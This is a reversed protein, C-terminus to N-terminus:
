TQPWPEWRSSPPVDGGMTQPSDKGWTSSNLYIPTKSMLSPPIDGDPSSPPGWLHVLANTFFLQALLCLEQDVPGDINRCDNLTMLNPDQSVSSSELCIAWIFKGGNIQGPKVEFGLMSLSFGFLRNRTKHNSLMQEHVCSEYGM